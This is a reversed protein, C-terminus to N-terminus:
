KKNDTVEKRLRQVENNALYLLKKAESERKTLVTVVEKLSAVKTNLDNNDNELQKIENYYKLERDQALAKVTSTIQKQKENEINSLHLSQLEKEKMKVETNIDFLQKKIHEKLPSLAISNDHNSAITLLSQMNEKENLVQARLERLAVMLANIVNSFHQSKKDLKVKFIIEDQKKADITQNLKEKLDTLITDFKSKAKNYNDDMESQTNTLKSMFLRHSDAKENMSIQLENNLRAKDNELQKIVKMHNINNYKENQIDNEYKNIYEKYVNIKDLLINNNDITVQNNQNIVDINRKLSVTEKTLITNTDKQMNLQKESDLLKMKYDSITNEYIKITNNLNNNDYELSKIKSLINALEIDKLDINQQLITLKSSLEINAIDNKNANDNLVKNYLLSLSSLKTEINKYDNQLTQYKVQYDNIQKVLSQNNNTINNIDVRYDNCKTTLEHILSQQLTIRKKFDLIDISDNDM